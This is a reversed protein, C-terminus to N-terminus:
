GQATPPCGTIFHKNKNFQHFVWNPCFGALWNPLFPVAEWTTGNRIYLGRTEERACSLSQPKFSWAPNQSIGSLQSHLVGTSQLVAKTGFCGPNRAASKKWFWVKYIYMFIYIPDWKTTLTKRKCSPSSACFPFTIAAYLFFTVKKPKLGQTGVLRLFIGGGVPLTLNQRSIM